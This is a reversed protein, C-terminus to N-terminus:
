LKELRPPISESLLELFAKLKAPVLRASSYLAHVPAPAPEFEALVRVLRGDALPQEVQYGLVMVLGLGHLAADIAADGNNTVFRGTTTLAKKGKAQLISNYLTRIEAINNFFNSVGTQAVTPLIFEYTNVVPLFFYKDFNYNFRYFSKNMGVWPDNDTGAAIEDDLEKVTHM